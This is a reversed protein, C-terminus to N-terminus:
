FSEEIHNHIDSTIFEMSILEWRWEASFIGEDIEDFVLWGAWVTGDDCLVYTKRDDIGEFPIVKIIKRM